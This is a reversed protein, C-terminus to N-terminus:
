RSGNYSIAPVLETIPRGPLRELEGPELTGALSLVTPFFSLSDYPREIELGQPVGAGAFLLTAHTSIRFFSGHNGGPNFGRANFNWHNRALVLLDAQVNDRRRQEFRRLLIEDQTAPETQEPLIVPSLQERLGIIANSYQTRHIADLWERETHWATLWEARDGPVNLNPDEFYHLPLGDRMPQGTFHIQGSRDQTLSKVPVYRLEDGRMQILAQSDASEYL